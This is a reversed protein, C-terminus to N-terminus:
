TLWTGFVELSVVQEFAMAIKHTPLIIKKKEKKGEKKTSFSFIFGNLDLTILHDQHHHQYKVLYKPTLPWERDGNFEVAYEHFLISPQSNIVAKYM